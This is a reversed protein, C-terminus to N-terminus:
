GAVLWAIAALGFVLVALAVLTVTGGAAPLRGGNTLLGHVHRYRMSAAAYAAIALVVVLIGAAAGLAGLPQAGFRVVLVGGVAVALCTRRWALLTREAQLGDDFPADTM